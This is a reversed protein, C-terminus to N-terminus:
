RSVADTDWGAAQSHGTSGAEFPPRAASRDDDEVAGLAKLVVKQADTVGTVGTINVREYPRDARLTNRCQGTQVDWCKLTEDESGSALGPWRSSLCRVM